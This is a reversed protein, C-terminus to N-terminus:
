RTVISYSHVNIEPMYSPGSRSVLSIGDLEELDNAFTTEAGPMLLEQCCRAYIVKAEPIGGKAPRLALTFNINRIPYVTNNKLTLNLLADGRADTNKVWECNKLVVDDAAAHITKLNGQSSLLEPQEAAAPQVAPAQNLIEEAQDWVNPKQVKRPYEFYAATCLIGIICGLFVLLIKKM